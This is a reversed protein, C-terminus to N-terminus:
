SHSSLVGRGSERPVQEEFARSTPHIKSPKRSGYKRAPKCVCVRIQNAFSIKEIRPLCFLARPLSGALQSSAMVNHIGFHNKGRPALIQEVTPSSRNGAMQGALSLCEGIFRVVKPGAMKWESYASEVSSTPVKLPERLALPPSLQIPM